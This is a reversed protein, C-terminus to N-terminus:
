YLKFCVFWSISRPIERTTWHKLSWREICSTHTWDRTLSSLNGWAMSLCLFLIFCFCHQLLNLLSKFFFFLLFLDKFVNNWSIILDMFFNLNLVSYSFYLFLTSSSLPLFYSHKLKSLSFILIYERFSFSVSVSLSLSILIITLIHLCQRWSRFASYMGELGNTPFMGLAFYKHAM